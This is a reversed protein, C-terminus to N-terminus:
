VSWVMAFKSALVKFAAVKLVRAKFTPLSNFVLWRKGVVRRAIDLIIYLVKRSEVLFNLEFLIMSKTEYIQGSFRLIHVVDVLTKMM